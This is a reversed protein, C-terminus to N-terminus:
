AASPPQEAVAPKVVSFRDAAAQSFPRWETHDWTSGGCMPCVPPLEAAVVGYGCGACRYDSRVPRGSAATM